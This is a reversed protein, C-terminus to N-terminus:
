ANARKKPRRQQFRMMEGCSQSQQADLDPMVSAMGRAVRELRQLDDNTFDPGAISPTMGKRCVQLVGFVAGTEGKIPASMLKQIPDPLESLPKESNLKIQEFITHHPVQPFRNFVLAQQMAATRAAVASSSLPIVGAAQLETPFVFMLSDGQLSLLGVETPRVGFIEAIAECIQAPTRQETSLQEQLKTFDPM